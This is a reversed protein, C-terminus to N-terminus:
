IHGRATNGTKKHAAHRMVARSGHHKEAIRWLVREVTNFQIIRFLLHPIKKGGFPVTKADRRTSM